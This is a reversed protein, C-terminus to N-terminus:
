NCQTEQRPILFRVVKAPNKRVVERRRFIEGKSLFVISADRASLSFDFSRMILSIKKLKGRRGKIIICM